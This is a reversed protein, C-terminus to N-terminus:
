ALWRKALLRVPNLLSNHCLGSRFREVELTTLYLASTSSDVELRKKRVQYIILSCSEIRHSVFNRTSVREGKQKQPGYRLSNFAASEGCESMCEEVTQETRDKM